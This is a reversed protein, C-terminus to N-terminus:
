SYNLNSGEAFKFGESGLFAITYVLLLIANITIYFMLLIIIFIFITITYMRATVVDFTYGYFM